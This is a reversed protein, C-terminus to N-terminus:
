TAAAAPEISFMGQSLIGGDVPRTTERLVTVTCGMKACMARMDNMGHAWKWDEFQFSADNSWKSHIIARGSDGIIRVINEIYEHLDGEHVAKLVRTSFLLKPKLAAVEVVSDPSIVRLNPKKEAMLTEGILSSGTELLTDAIDMGWYNGANLYNIAHLGVRLTGCGYDVYIDEPKLGAKVISKFRKKGSEEFDGVELNPGLSKHTKGTFDKKNLKKAFYDKFTKTPNQAQYTEFQETKKGVSVM